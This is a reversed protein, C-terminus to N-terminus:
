INLNDDLCEINVEKKRILDERALLDREIQIIKCESKNKLEKNYEILGNDHQVKRGHVIATDVEVSEEELISGLKFDPLNLRLMPNLTPSFADPFLYSYHTTRTVLQYFLKYQM